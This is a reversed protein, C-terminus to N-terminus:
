EREQRPSSTLPTTPAKPVWDASTNGALNVGARNSSAQSPSPKMEMGRPGSIQTTQGRQIRIHGIDLM